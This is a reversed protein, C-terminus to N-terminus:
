LREVVGAAIAWVVLQVPFGRVAPLFMLFTVCRGADAVRREAEVAAVELVQLQTIASAHPRAGGRHELLLAEGAVQM